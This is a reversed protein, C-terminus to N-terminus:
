LRLLQLLKVCTSALDLCSHVFCTKCRMPKNCSVCHSVRHAYRRRTAQRVARNHEDQQARQKHCTPDRQQSSQTRRTTSSQTRKTTSSQTRRTKSTTPVVPFFKQSSPCRGPGCIHCNVQNDHAHTTSTPQRHRGGCRLTSATGDAADCVRLTM